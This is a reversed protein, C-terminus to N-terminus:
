IELYNFDDNKIFQIINELMEDCFAPNKKMNKVTCEWIIIIRIGSAKLSAKIMEDHRINDSFKKNWFETHTKPTTAFHCDKHRHWFCGNVFVATANRSFYLDPSGKIKSYNVRYRLGRKHLERRIFLEPTTRTSRIKSMNASRQSKTITDM